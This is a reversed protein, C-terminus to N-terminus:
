RGLWKQIGRELPDHVLLALAAAGIWLASFLPCIQGLWNGPQDRYDWVRYDRNFLLGATLEVMTIIGAGAVARLSFPLKPEMHNLKGILVLSSGGALFMSGHSRGRFLLEMAVYSGGGLSFLVTKRWLNVCIVEDYPKGFIGSFFTFYNKVFRSVKSIIIFSIEATGSIRQGCKAAYSLQYLVRNM